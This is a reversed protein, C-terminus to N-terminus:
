SSLIEGGGVCYLPKSDNSVIKAPGRNVATPETHLERKLTERLALDTEAVSAHIHNHGPTQPEAEKANPTEICGVACTKPRNLDDIANVTNNNRM